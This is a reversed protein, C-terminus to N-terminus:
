WHWGLTGMGEVITTGAGLQSEGKLGFFLGSRQRMELSAGLLAGDRAPHVGAVVFSAGALGLFSAQTLPVDDIQHAWAARLDASLTGDALAYDRSIGAGLETRGLTTSHGAYSLAFTSAGSVATEAYAPSELSDGMFAAYPTIGYAEDLSLRYGAEIRGGIDHADQKGQLVDTGSVTVTRLTTVQHWGYGLAAAVYLPGADHRAYLGITVDDSSGTGNGSHFDQNGWGLTAGILLSDAVRMDIGGVVGANTGSLGAAGSVADASLGVHGGYGAGWVRMEHSGLQARHPAGAAGYANGPAFSGGGDGGQMTLSFFSLSGQGAGNAINPGIQGSIQDIASNLSPGSLNYLATFGGTPATGGQVAKDIAGLVNSQNGTTNGTLPALADADLNLYAHNADYSLRAKFGIPTGLANLAAFSGSLGSTANILTFRQGVTYTGSAFNAFATGNLSATGSATALSAASPTVFDVFNAGSALTLSGNVTLTGPTGSAGPLLTAGSAISTSGVTGTGTLTAGNAVSASSSAIAGTVNLTGANVSTAGTYTNAASLTLTGSGAQTVMGTGSIVGGFSVADSRNFILAANNTVNGAIAGVTGGSGIQLTGASITTGGTYSNAGTLITTGTGSQAVSGSGSIAGSLVLTDSRNFALMANDAVNGSIAGATGGNGIQLTGASITTGGAYSNAGTLILTGTGAQTLAGSGSIVGPFTVTDSRNFVLTGSDTVNGV